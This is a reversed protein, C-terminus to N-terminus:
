VVVVVVVVVVIYYKNSSSDVSHTRYPPEIGAGPMAKRPVRRASTRM